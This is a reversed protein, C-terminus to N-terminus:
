AAHADEASHSTDAQGAAERDGASPATATSAPSQPEESQPPAAPPAASGPGAAGLDERSEAREGPWFYVGLFIIGVGLVLTPWMMESQMWHVDYNNVTLLVGLLILFLGWGPATVRAKRKVREAARGLEASVQKVGEKAQTAARGLEAAAGRVGEKVGSAVAGLQESVQAASDRAVARVDEPASFELDQVAAGERIAQATSYADFLNWVWLVFAMLGGLGNLLQPLFLFAVLIIVGKVPQRNYMQGVGPLLSLFVAVRPNHPKTGSVAPPAQPPAQQQAQPQAQAEAQAAQCQPCVFGQPGPRTCQWCLPAGCHSCAGVPTADPHYRCRPENTM